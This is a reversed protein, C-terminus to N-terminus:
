IISTTKWLISYRHMADAAYVFGSWGKETTSDTIEILKSDIFMSLAFSVILM